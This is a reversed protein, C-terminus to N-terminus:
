WVRVCSCVKTFIVKFEDFDVFGDDNQHNHFRTLYRSRLNLRWEGNGVVVDPFLQGM